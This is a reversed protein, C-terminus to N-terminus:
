LVWDLASRYIRTLFRNIPMSDESPIQGRILGGMLVPILTIALLAAGAM